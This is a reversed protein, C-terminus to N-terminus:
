STNNVPVSLVKSSLLKLFPSRYRDHTVIHTLLAGDQSSLQTIMEKTRSKQNGSENAEM